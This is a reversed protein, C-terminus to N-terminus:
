MEGHSMSFPVLIGLMVYFTRRMRDEVGGKIWGSGNRIKIKSLNEERFHVRLLEQSKWGTIQRDIAIM